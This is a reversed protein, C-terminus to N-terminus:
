YVRRVADRIGLKDILPDSILSFRGIIHDKSSIGFLNLFADNVKRTIGNVDCVQVPYPLQRIIQNLREESERLSNEDRRQKNMRHQADISFLILLLIGLMRSGWELTTPTFFEQLLPTRNILAIRITAICWYLVSFTLGSILFPSKHFFSQKKPKNQFPRKIRINAHRNIYDQTVTGFLILIFVVLMRMWFTMPEPFFFQSAFSRQGFILVDRVSELVWYFLSFWCGMLIWNINHIIKKVRKFM